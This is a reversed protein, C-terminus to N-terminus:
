QVTQTTTKDLCNRSSAPTTNMLVRRFHARARHLLVRLYSREIQFEKCIGDKDEEELILRRLLERDRESLRNLIGRVHRDRQNIIVRQEPTQLDVGEPVDEPMESYRTEARFLELGVNRCVSHIFAPLKTPDELTKGSRFYSLVRLFVEQSGDEFLQPHSRLHIRLKMRISTKFGTLLLQEAEPDCQALRQFFDKDSLFLMANEM